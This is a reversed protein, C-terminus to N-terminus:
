PLELPSSCVVLYPPSAAHVLTTQATMPMTEMHPKAATKNRRYLESRESARWRRGLEGGGIACGDTTRFRLKRAEDELRPTWYIMAGSGLFRCDRVFTLSNLSSGRSCRLCLHCPEAARGPLEDDGFCQARKSMADVLDSAPGVPTAKETTARLLIREVDSRRRAADGGPGCDDKM